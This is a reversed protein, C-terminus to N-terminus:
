FYFTLNIAGSFNNMNFQSLGGTETTNTDVKSGDWRETKQEGNGRNAFSFGWGVEGGVAIGSAVFYEVGAFARAGINFLTGNSTSVPRSIPNSASLANGYTFDRGTSSVGFGVEAGYFGQLRTAGIRKELGVYLSVDTNNLKSVDEVTENPGGGIKPVITTQSALSYGIRVKGRLAIKDSLFYKGYFSGYTFAPATADTDSFIGGLYTLFPTADVGLAVSGAQPIITTGKSNTLDDGQAVAMNTACVAVMLTSLIKKMM